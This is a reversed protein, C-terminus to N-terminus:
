NPTGVAAYPQLRPWRGHEKGRSVVYMWVFPGFGFPVFIWFVNLRSMGVKKCVSPVIVLLGLSFLVFWWLYMQTMEARKLLRSAMLIVAGFYLLVVIVGITDNM